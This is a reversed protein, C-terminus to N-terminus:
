LVAAKDLCKFEKSHELKQSGEIASYKEDTEYLLNSDTLVKPNWKHFSAGLVHCMRMIPSGGPRQFRYLPTGSFFIAGEMGM